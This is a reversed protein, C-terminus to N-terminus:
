AMVNTPSTMAGVGVGCQAKAHGRRVISLGGTLSWWADRSSGHDTPAARSSTSTGDPPAPHYKMVGLVTGGLLVASAIVMGWTWLLPLPKPDAIRWYKRLRPVVGFAVLVAAPWVALWSQWGLATFIAWGVLQYTAGVASGLGVDEAWNGTSRWLARLILIGPLAVALAFYLTYKAIPGLPVDLSLLAVLTLLFPFLWPLLRPLCRIM